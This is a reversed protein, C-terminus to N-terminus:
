TIIFKNYTIERPAGRILRAATPCSRAVVIISFIVEQVIQRRAIKIVVRVNSLTGFIVNGTCQSGRFSSLRLVASNINHGKNLREVILM